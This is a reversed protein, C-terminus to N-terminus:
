QVASYTASPAATLGLLILVSKGLPTIVNKILPLSITMLPRLFNLFGGQNTVKRTTCKLLNGRNELSKIVKMINKIENNTFTIESSTIYKKKFM